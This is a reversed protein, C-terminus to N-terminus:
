LHKEIIDAIELFTKGSDNLVMLTAHNDRSPEIENGSLEAWNIIRDSLISLKLNEGDFFQNFDDFKIGSKKKTKSYVDCLVGLCCYSDSAKLVGTTQKYKGSRLAKLWKDKIESNM